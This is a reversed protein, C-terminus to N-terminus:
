NRKADEQDEPGEFDSPEATRPGNIDPAGKPFNPAEDEKGTKHPRNSQNKSKDTM